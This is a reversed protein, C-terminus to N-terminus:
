IKIGMITIDDYQEINGKWDSLVLELKAKQSEMPLSRLEVLTDRLNKSM